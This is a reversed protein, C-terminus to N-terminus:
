NNIEDLYDKIQDGLEELLGTDLNKEIIIKAQKKNNEYELNDLKRKEKIINLEENWSEKDYFYRKFHVEEKINKFTHSKIPWRKIWDELFKRVDKNHFHEDFYDQPTYILSVLQNPADFFYTDSDQKVKSLNYIWVVIHEELNLKEKNLFYIKNNLKLEM